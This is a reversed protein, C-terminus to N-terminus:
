TFFRLTIERRGQYRKGYEAFCADLRQQDSIEIPTRHEMM